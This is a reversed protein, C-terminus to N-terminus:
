SSLPKWNALIFYGGQPLIPIMGADNIAKVLIGRRHKLEKRMEMLYSSGELKGKEATPKVIGLYELENEFAAGVAEQEPTQCMYTCNQHAIQLNRMLNAPGYAWGLKWGTLSSFVHYCTNHLELIPLFFPQIFM